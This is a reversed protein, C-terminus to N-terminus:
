KEGPRAPAQALVNSVNICPVGDDAARIGMDDDTLVITGTENGSATVIESFDCRANRRSV